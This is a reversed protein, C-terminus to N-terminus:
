RENKKKLQQNEEILPDTDCKFLDRRFAREQRKEDAATEKYNFFLTPAYDRIQTVRFRLLRFLCVLKWKAVLEKQKHTKDLMKTHALREFLAYCCLYITDIDHDEMKSALSITEKLFLHVSFSAM